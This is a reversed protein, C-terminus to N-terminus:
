SFKPNPDNFTVQGVFEKMLLYGYPYSVSHFLMVKHEGDEELWEKVPYYDNSDFIRVAIFESGLDRAKDVVKQMEGQNITVYNVDLVGLRSFYRTPSDYYMQGQSINMVVIVADNSITVPMDGVIVEDNEFRYGPSGLIDSDKGLATYVFRGTPCIVKVGKSNLYLAAQIKSPLDCCGIVVTANNRLSQEVLTNIGHTDVMMVLNDRFFRTTPYFIKEKSIKFRFMGKDDPAYWEDGVKLALTGTAVLHKLGVKKLEDIRAGEHWGIDERLEEVGYDFRESFVRLLNSSYPNKIQASLWDRSVREAQSVLIDNSDLVIKSTGFTVTDFGNSAEFVSELESVNYSLNLEVGTGLSRMIDERWSVGLEGWLRAADLYYDAYGSCGLSGITEYILAREELNETVIMKFEEAVECMTNRDEKLRTLILMLDARAFDDDEFVLAKILEKAYFDPDIEALQLVWSYDIKTFKYIHYSDFSKLLKFHHNSDLFQKDPQVLINTGYVVEGERYVFYGDETLNRFLVSYVREDRPYLAFTDFGSYYALLPHEANTYILGPELNDVMWESVVKAETDYTLVHHEFDHNFVTFILFLTLIVIMFIRWNRRKKLKFGHYYGKASILLFPFLIPILYRLEKHPLYTMYFLFVFGYVLLALDVLNGKCRYVAFIFLVLGLLAFPLFLYINAFYYLISVNYDAVVATASFFPKLFSGTTIQTFIFYPVMTLLFIICTKLIYKFNVIKFIWLLLLLLVLALSTFRTLVAVALCIGALYSDYKRKRIFFYVFMISFTLAAVGTLTYHSWEIVIPSYALLSAAMLGIKSNYLKEGLLYIFYIGLVSILGVLVHAMLASHWVFYGFFFFISIMPPRFHLESYNDRGSFMIESHQLYVTEDWYNSTRM